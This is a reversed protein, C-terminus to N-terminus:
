MSKIRVETQPQISPDEPLLWEWSTLGPIPPQANQYEPCQLPNARRSKRWVCMSDGVLGVAEVVAHLISPRPLPTAPATSSVASDHM